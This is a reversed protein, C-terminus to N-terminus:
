LKAHMSRPFTGAHDMPFASHAPLPFSTYRFGRTVTITTSLAHLPFPTYCMLVPFPSYHFRRIVRCRIRCTSSVAHLEFSVFLRCFNVCMTFKDENQMIYVYILRCGRGTKFGCALLSIYHFTWTFRACKVGGYFAKGATEM